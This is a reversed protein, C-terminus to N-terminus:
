KIKFIELYKIKMIADKEIAQTTSTGCYNGKVIDFLIRNDGSPIGKRMTKVVIGNIKYVVKYPTLEVDYLYYDERPTFGRNYRTNHLTSKKGFKDEYDYGWHHTVYVENACGGCQEFMDHEPTGNNSFLWFASWAGPADPCKIMARITGYKITFNSWLYAFKSNEEKPMRMVLCDDDRIINDPSSIQQDWPLNDRFLPDTKFDFNKEWGAQWPMNGITIDKMDFFMHEGKPKPTAKPTKPIKRLRFVWKEILSRIDM